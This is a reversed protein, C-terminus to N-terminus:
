LAFFARYNDVYGHRKAYRKMTAHLKVQQARYDEVQENDFWVVAADRENTLLRVYESKMAEWKTHITQPKM